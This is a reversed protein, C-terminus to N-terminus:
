WWTMRSVLYDWPRHFLNWALSHRECDIRVTGKMGPRLRDDPNDLTVTAIFVNRGDGLESEPRIRQVTADFSEGTLGTLWIRIPDGVQVHAIEEAPIAVEVRMRDLSGIEYVVDGTDVASATAQETSGTLVVGDIPSRIELQNLQHQLLSARAALRESELQSVLSATINRQALEIERQKAAQRQEAMVSALEFRLSQGDMTAILDGAAVNDGPQVLAQEIQGEFPAVAFRRLTPETQCGCRVRYRVPMMLLSVLVLGTVIWVVSKKSRIRTGMTQWARVLRSRQMRHSVLLGGAISPAATRVFQRLQKAQIKKAPGTILMTGVVRGDSTELPTSLVGECKLDVCLQRHAVLLHSQNDDTTPYVGIEKRLLSENLTMEIADHAPSGPQLKVTGSLSRVHLRKGFRTGIAVQNVDLHRALENAVVHCAEDVTEQSELKAVLDIVAALAQVKWDNDTAHSSELYLTIYVATADLAMLMEQVNHKHSLVLVVLNTEGDAVPVYISELGLFREMQITGRKLVADCTSGFKKVFDPRTPIRGSVDDSGMRWGAAPTQTLIGVGVAGTTKIIAERFARLVSPRDGNLHMVHHLAQHLGPIDLAAPKDISTADGTVTGSALPRVSPPKATPGITTTESTAPGNTPSEDTM